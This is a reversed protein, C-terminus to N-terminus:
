PMRRSSGLPFEFGLDKAAATGDTLMRARFDLDVWARAIMRAGNDTIWKEDAHDNFDEVFTEPMEGKRRLIIELAATRQMPTAPTRQADNSM